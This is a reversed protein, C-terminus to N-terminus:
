LLAPRYKKLQARIKQYEPVMQALELWFGAQHHLHHLHTLEHCLVYDILEIPLQMLWISLNIAKQNSCSGWRTQTSRISVTKYSYGYQNALQHLRQPLYAEAQRRLARTAAKRAEIQVLPDSSQSQDPYYINVQCAQIRSYIKSTEVPKFVLTHERGIAHGDHLIEVAPPRNQLFWDVHKKAFLEAAVYPVYAPITVVCRGSATVRMILRKARKSKRLEVEGIGAIAVLHKM